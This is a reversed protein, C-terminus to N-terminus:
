QVECAWMPRGMSSALTDALAMLADHVNGYPTARTLLSGGAEDGMSVSSYRHSQPARGTALNRMVVTSQHSPTTSSAISM